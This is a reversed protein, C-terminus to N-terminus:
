GHPVTSVAEVGLLREVVLRADEGVGYFLDSQMFRQFRLGVFGVGPEDSVGADHRPHGADDFIPLHIWRHDPLYGTAWIITGIGEAALDLSPTLPLEFGESGDHDDSNVPDSTDAAPADIGHESILKDVEKKFETAVFDSRGLNEHLDPAVQLRTGDIGTVHGLLRIGDRAFRHLNITHGGRAGSIHPNPGFRGRPDPLQDETLTYGGLADWWEFGDRGRYRRPIRGVKGTALWVDRGALSLDEAIQCGTQASGIVLVGGPPLSEPNRYEIANLQHVAPDVDAAWAPVKPVRFWGTAIVVNTAAIPGNATSVHYREPSGEPARDLSTAAVNPRIPAGFAAAYGSLMSVVEDRPMFGDRDSPPELGPLRITWNPTVLTFSDWRRRRWTDGVQGADLVLHERGLRTLHYSTALGAQGAGIVLTEVREM